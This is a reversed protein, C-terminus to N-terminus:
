PTHRPFKNNSPMALHVDVVAPDFVTGSWRSIEARAAAVARAFAHPRDSVFTEFACAVAVIRAGLPITEGKLGRPYGSGNFKERHAYVIEAASALSPINRLSEYGLFCYTRMVRMEDENLKAPKFLISDPVDLKGVEHLLGGLAIGRVSDPSLKMAAALAHATAAVREAHERMGLGKRGLVTLLENVAGNSLLEEILMSSCFVAFQCIGVSLPESGNRRDREATIKLV